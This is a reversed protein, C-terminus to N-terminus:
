GPAAEQPPHLSPGPRLGPPAPPAPGPRRLVLGRHPEAAAGPGVGVQPTQQPAPPPRQSGWGAGSGERGVSGGWCRRPSAAAPVRPAATVLGASSLTVGDGPFPPGGAWRIRGEERRRLQWDRHLVRAISSREEETLFSLDLLAEPELAMPPQPSLGPAARPAPGAPPAALEAHRAHVLSALM